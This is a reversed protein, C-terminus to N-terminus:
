RGTGLTGLTMGHRLPTLSAGVGHNRSLPKEPMGGRLQTQPLNATSCWISCRISTGLRPPTERISTRSPGVPRRRHGSATFARITASLRSGPARTQSTAWFCPNIARCRECHRPRARFPFSTKGPSSPGAKTGRISSGIATGSGTTAVTPFPTTLISIAPATSCTGDSQLGSRAAAIAAANFLARHDEGILRNPDHDGRLRYVKALTMIPQGRHRLGLQAKGRLCAHHHHESGFAAVPDFNQEPHAMTAGSTRAVM